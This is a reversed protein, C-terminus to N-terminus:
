VVKETFIKTVEEPDGNLVRECVDALDSGIIKGSDQKRIFYKSTRIYKFDNASHENVYRRTAELVISWEYDYTEFFWRFAAELNKVNCRLYVGGGGKIAPFLQVYTNMNEVYTSGLLQISTKKKQIKFYSDIKAILSIAKPQLVNDSNIWGEASLFRLEQHININQASLNEQSCCLLYFQNPTLGTETMKNFMEMMQVDSKAM